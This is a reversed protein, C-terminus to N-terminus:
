HCRFQNTQIVPIVGRLCPTFGTSGHLHLPILSDKGFTLALEGILELVLESLGEKKLVHNLMLNVRAM